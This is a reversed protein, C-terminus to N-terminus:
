SAPKAPVFAIVVEKTKVRTNCASCRRYRIRIGPCPRKTCYVALRVGRCSPCYIGKPSEPM